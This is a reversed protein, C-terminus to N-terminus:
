ILTRLVKRFDYYRFSVPLLSLVFSTKDIFFSTTLAELNSWEAYLQNESGQNPELDLPSAQAGKVGEGHIMALLLQYLLPFAKHNM